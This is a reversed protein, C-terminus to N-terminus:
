GLVNIFVDLFQIESNLVEVEEIGLFYDFSWINKSQRSLLFTSHSNGALCVGAWLWLSRGFRM